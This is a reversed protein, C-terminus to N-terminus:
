KCVHKANTPKQLWGLGSFPQYVTNVRANWQKMHMWNKKEHEYM